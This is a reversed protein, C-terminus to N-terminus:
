SKAGGATTATAVTGPEASAEVPDAHAAGRQEVAATVRWDFRARYLERLNCGMRVAAARDIALTRIGAALEEATSREALWVHECHTFEVQDLGGPQRVAVVPLGHAAAAMFASSRTLHGDPQPLVFVDAAQLARSVEVAELRGPWWVFDAIGAEQAAGKLRAVYEPSAAAADGLMWLSVPMSRRLLVIADMLGDYNKARHFMGFAAVVTEEPRVGRARRFADREAPSLPVMPITSSNPCYGIKRRWWPFLRALLDARSRMNVAVSEAASILLAIHLWQALAVPLHLPHQRMSIALEHLTVLVPIGRRRLRFLMANVWWALGWRGWAYASYELQVRDPAWVAIAEVAPGVDRWGRLPLECLGIALHRTEGAPETLVTVFHGAAALEQSLCFSYDGVGCSRPPFNKTILLVRM